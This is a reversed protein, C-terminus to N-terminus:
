RIGWAVRQAARYAQYATREERVGYFNQVITASQEAMPANEAMQAVLDPHNAAWSNAANVAAHSPHIDGGHGWSAFARRIEDAVWWARSLLASEEAILGDGLARFFSRGIRFGDSQLIADMTATMNRIIQLVKRNMAELTRVVIESIELFTLEFMEVQPELASRAMAIAAEEATCAEKDIGEAVGQVIGKGIKDAFVRSPSNIGLFRAVSGLVSNNFFGTIKNTIWQKMANIGNWLGYILNRGINVIGGLIDSISYMFNQGINLVYNWAGQWNGQFINIFIGLANQIFSFVGQFIGSITNWVTSIANQITAGHNYLFIQIWGFVTSVLNKIFNIVPEIADQIKAWIAALKEQADECNKVWGVVAGVIAAVAAIILGKPGLMLWLKQSYSAIVTGAAKLKPILWSYIDDGVKVAKEGFSKLGDVATTICGGIYQFATNLKGGKTMLSEWANGMNEFFKIYTNVAGLRTAWKMFSDYMSGFARNCKEAVEECTDVFRELDRAIQNLKRNIEEANIAIKIFVDFLEM